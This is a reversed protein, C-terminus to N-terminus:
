VLVGRAEEGRALALLDPPFKIYTRRDQPFTEIICNSEKLVSELLTFREVLSRNGRRPNLVRWDAGRVRGAKSPTDLAAAFSQLEQERRDTLLKFGLEAAAQEFTPIKHGRFFRDLTDSVFTDAHDPNKSRWEEVPCVDKWNFEKAGDKLDVLVVRRAVGGDTWFVPLLPKCTMAVAALNQLAGGGRWPAEFWVGRAFKPIHSQLRPQLRSAMSDLNDYLTLEGRGAAEEYQELHKNIDREFNRYRAVTCALSAALLATRTKGAGNEGILLVMPADGGRGLDAFGIAALLLRVANLDIRPYSRLLASEAAKIDREAASRFRFRFRPSSRHLRKPSIIPWGVKEQEAQEKARRAADEQRQREQEARRRAEEQEQAIRGREAQERNAKDRAAQERKVREAEQREAADQRAQEVAEQLQEATYPRLIDALTERNEPRKDKYVATLFKRVIEAAIGRAPSQANTVIHTWVSELLDM